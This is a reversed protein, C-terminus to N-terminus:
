TNSNFCLLVFLLVEKIFSSIKEKKLEYKGFPCRSWRVGLELFLTAFEMILVM